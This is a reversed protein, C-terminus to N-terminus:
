VLRASLFAPCQTSTGLQHQRLCLTGNCVWHVPWHVPHWGTHPLDTCLICLIDCLTLYIQNFAVCSTVCHSTCWETCIICLIDGLTLFFRPVFYLPYWVILLLDPYYFVCSAVCHWTFRFVFYVPYRGIHSIDTCLICLIDCFTLYIQIHFCLIDYLRLYVQAYFVRCVEWHSTFRVVFYM